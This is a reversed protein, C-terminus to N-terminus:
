TRPDRFPCVWAESVARGSYQRAASREGHQALMPNASGALAIDRQIIRERMREYLQQERLREFQAHLNFILTPYAFRRAPRTAGPHLGVIFFAKSALSVAFEAEDPRPSVSPDYSNGLWADKDALSQLRQWMAQEFQLETLHRPEAFIVALSSLERQQAPHLNVWVALDRHIELDSWGSRIDRAAITRLGGTASASKAGVCPFHAHAIFGRLQADLEALTTDQLGPEMTLYCRM